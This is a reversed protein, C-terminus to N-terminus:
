IYKTCPIKKVFPPKVMHYVNLVPSCRRLLRERAWSGRRTIRKSGEDNRPNKVGQAYWNNCDGARAHESPGGESHM